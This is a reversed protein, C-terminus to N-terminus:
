KSPILEPKVYKEELYKKYPKFTYGYKGRWRTRIKELEREYEIKARMIFVRKAIAAEEVSKVSNAVNAKVADLLKAASLEPDFMGEMAGMKETSSM